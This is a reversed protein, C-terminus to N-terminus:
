PIGGPARVRLANPHVRVLLREGGQVPEGDVHFPMPVEGVVEAERVTVSTVGSARHLTGNFLRRMRGIDAFWSRPEIAVLDLAGDDLRALPAVIAGNGFQRSNAFVAALLRMRITRGGADIRYEAARYTLVQGATLLVYRLKGRTGASHVPFRSAIHADLGIGAVNFFLRGGIEGADIPRDASRIACLLAAAPDSPIGLERALGNGSGAPIIGLSGPGFAVARGVENITGDGGWACILPVQRVSAARALEYAHGPRESVDVEAEIGADRLLRVALARRDAGSDGTGATGSVPNIIVAVRM